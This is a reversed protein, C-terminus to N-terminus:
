ELYGRILEVFVLLFSHESDMKFKVFRYFLVLNMMKSFCIKALIIKMNQGYLAEM